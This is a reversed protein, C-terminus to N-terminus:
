QMNVKYITLSIYIYLVFGICAHQFTQHTWQVIMLIWRLYMSKDCKELFFYIRLEYVVSFCFSTKNMIHYSKTVMIITM